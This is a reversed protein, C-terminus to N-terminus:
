PRAAVDRALARWAVDMRHAPVAPHDWPALAEPRWAPGAAARVWREYEAFWLALRRLLARARRWEDPTRPHRAGALAATWAADPLTGGARWRPAFRYRNVYICGDADALCAGHAALAVAPGGDPAHLRYVTSGPTGPPPRLRDFGHLLLLNGDPRAVDRGLCWCQQHLLAQGLRRLRGGLRPRRPRPAAWAPLARPPIPRPVPREPEPTTM